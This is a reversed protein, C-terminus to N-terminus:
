KKSNVIGCAISDLIRQGEKTIVRGKTGKAVIGIRELDQLCHRIIGGSALCFRNPKVGRRESGGYVQRFAGVGTNQRLYVKRALSAARIFYWDPNTPALDKFKGTKAYVHFAPLHVKGSKKLHAAYEAVFKEASVDRLTVGQKRTM